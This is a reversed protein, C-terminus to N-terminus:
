PEAQVHAAFCELLLGRVAQVALPLPRDGAHALSIVRELAPRVIPVALLRAALPGHGAFRRSLVTYGVGDAVLAKIQDLADVEVAIRPAKRRRAAAAEVEERVGHPRGPLILPHDLAEDLTIDGRGALGADGAPAVLCLRERALTEAALGAPLDAGFVLALDVEGLAAWRLMHGSLGEVVRLRVLPLRQRVAKVLPVTLLTGLSTPIGIAAPGSPEAHQDRVQEPLADFAELLAQARQGLRRGAETAVVGRTTRHVLPCGLEEELRKLHLSLAPQAVRLAEAARSISGQELIGVFYRLQRLDM